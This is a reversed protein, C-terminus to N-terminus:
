QNDPTYESSYNKSKWLGKRIKYSKGKKIDRLYRKGKRGKSGEYVVRRNKKGDLKKKFKVITKGYFKDKYYECNPDALIAALDTDQPALILRRPNGHNSFDQLFDPIDDENADEDPDIGMEDFALGSAENELETIRLNLDIIEEDRSLIEADKPDTWDELIEKSRLFLTTHSEEGELPIEYYLESHLKFLMKLNKSIDKTNGFESFSRDIIGDTSTSAYKRKYLDYTNYAM